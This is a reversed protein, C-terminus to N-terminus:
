KKGHRAAPKKAQGGYVIRVQAPLPPLGLRSELPQCEFAQAEKWNRTCAIYLQTLRQRVM